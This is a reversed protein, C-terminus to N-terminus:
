IQKAWLLRKKFYIILNHLGVRIGVELSYYIKWWMRKVHMLDVLLGCVAYM